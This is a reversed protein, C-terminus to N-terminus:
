GLSMPIIHYHVNNFQFALSGMENQGVCCHGGKSCCSEVESMYPLQVAEWLLDHRVISGLKDSLESALKVAKESDLKCCGGSVVWPAVDLGLSDVLFQLLVQVQKDIFAM